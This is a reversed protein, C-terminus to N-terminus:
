NSWFRLSLRGTKLDQELQAGLRLIGSGLINTMNRSIGLTAFLCASLIVIYELMAQGKKDSCSEMFVKSRKKTALNLQLKM